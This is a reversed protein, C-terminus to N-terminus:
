TSDATITGTATDLASGTGTKRISWTLTTSRSGGSISNTYSRNSSMAIWSGDASAESSLTNGSVYDYKVDYNDGVTSYRPNIWNGLSAGVDNLIRGDRNFTVTATATAPAAVIVTRSVDDPLVMRRGSASACVVGTM